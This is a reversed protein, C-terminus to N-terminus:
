PYIYRGFAVLLPAMKDSPNGTKLFCELMDLLRPVDRDNKAGLLCANIYNVVIIRVTEAPTDALDKLVHQLKDWQLDGRIMLRCLDIIEANDMPMQLLAAAESEDECDHVKSLLTLAARPSGEAARAVRQLINGPTDFKEKDCVDELLDMLYDFKVPALTYSLCRTVMAPPIKGPNTSCFFFFVHPPPEETSKLLSDWAQKSLGQCEDIIIAKNPSDGFGNYRLTATIGRMDDIGSNSAADIEIMNSLDCSFRAAIIRALTTKGTGPPGTLLFTHPRAKAELAARISKVVGDQGLVEDLRKPRYKLHLPETLVAVPENTNLKTRM